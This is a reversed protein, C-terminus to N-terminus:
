PLKKQETYLSMKQHKSDSVVYCLMRSNGGLAADRRPWRDADAGMGWLLGQSGRALGRKLRLKELRLNFSLDGHRGLAASDTCCVCSLRLFGTTIVLQDASPYV